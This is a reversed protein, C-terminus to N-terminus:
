KNTSTKRRSSNKNRGQFSKGNDSNKQANKQATKERHSFPRRSKQNSSKEDRSANQNNSRGNQNNTRGNQNNSRGNQPRRGRPNKPPTSVESMPYNENEAVPITMKILKQIDKLYATESHDCFSIAVGERGARGTRGIRHVYTEPENTLDYNIVHTLKRVDIGRAAIDTAVLVHIRGAKFTNLANQRANQSKNGHIAATQIGHEDLYTVVRDAGHKTRTFVLATKVEEKNLLEVLLKPKNGKDVFYVAQEITDVTSSIPQVAISLPDVLMGDAISKIEPPMTASFLLNQREKPMCHMVKKIDGIFGMDLMRDAEDLVFMEVKDLIIFGQGILDNLRGPTAVLVDIGRRLMIEQNKQSVGGYIVGYKLKTYRGYSHFSEFIQVALERTPTIILARIARPNSIGSTELRHIIPMAFAATKGTGTQACGVLDRGNMLEPIAKSQIDSPEKYGIKEIARMVNPCLNLEEFKM